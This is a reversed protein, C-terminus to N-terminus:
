SLVCLIISVFVSIAADESNIMYYAWCTFYSTLRVVANVESSAVYSASHTHRLYKYYVCM